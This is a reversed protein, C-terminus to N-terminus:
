SHHTDKAANFGSEDKKSSLVSNPNPRHWTGDQYSGHPPGMLTAKM